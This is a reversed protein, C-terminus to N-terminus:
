VIEIDDDDFDFEEFLPPEDDFDEDPGEDEPRPVPLGRSKCGARRRCPTKHGGDWNDCGEPQHSEPILDCKDGGGDCFKDDQQECEILELQSADSHIKIRLPVKNPNNKDEGMVGKICSSDWKVDYGSSFLGSTLGGGPTVKYSVDKCDMKRDKGCLCCAHEPGKGDKCGKGTTGGKKKWELHMKGGDFKARCSHGDGHSSWGCYTGSVKPAGTSSLGDRPSLLSRLSQTSNAIADDEANISGFVTFALFCSSKM